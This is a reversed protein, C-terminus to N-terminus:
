KRRLEQITPGLLSWIFTVGVLGGVIWIFPPIKSKPNDENKPIDPLAAPDEFIKMKSYDQLTNMGWNELLTYIFVKNTEPVKEVNESFWNDMRQFMSTLTEYCYDAGRSEWWTGLTGANFFGPAAIGANWFSDYADSGGEDKIAAALAEVYQRYSEANKKCDLPNARLNLLKERHNSM